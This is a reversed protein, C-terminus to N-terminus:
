AACADPSADREQAHIVSEKTDLLILPGAALPPGSFQGSFAAINAGKDARLSTEIMISTKFQYLGAAACCDSWWM